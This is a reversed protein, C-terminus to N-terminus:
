FDESQVTKRGSIRASRAIKESDKKIKEEEIKIFPIMSDNGIKVGAKKFEEKLIKKNILGM